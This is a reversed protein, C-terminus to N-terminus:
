LFVQVSRWKASPRFLIPGVERATSRSAAEPHLGQGAGSGLEPTSPQPFAISPQSQPLTCPAQSLPLEREGPGGRWGQQLRPSLDTEQRQLAPGAGGPCPLLSPWSAQGQRGPWRGWRLLLFGPEQSRGGGLSGPTHLTPFPWPPGAQIVQHGGAEQLLLQAPESDEGLVVELVVPTLDGATAKTVHELCPVLVLPHILHGGQRWCSAM